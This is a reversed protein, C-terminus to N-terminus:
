DEQALQSRGRKKSRSGKAQDALDKKRGMIYADVIGIIWCLVLVSLASKTMFDDSTASAQSASSLIAAMDIADGEAEIKGLITFAQQAAKMVVVASCASVALILASGRIYHKLWLQGAGPFILGSLLAGKLSKKM